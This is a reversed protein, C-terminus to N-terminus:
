INVCNSTPCPTCFFKDILQTKPPIPPGPPRRIIIVTPQLPKNVVVQPRAPEFNLPPGYNILPPPRMPIGISNPGNAQMMTVHDSRIETNPKFEPAVHIPKENDNQIIPSPINSNSISDLNSLNINWTNSMEKNNQNPDPSLPIQQNNITVELTITNDPNSPSNSVTQSEFESSILPPNVQTVPQALEYFTENSEIEDLNAITTIEVTTPIEDTKSDEYDLDDGFRNSIHPFQEVSPLNTTIQASTTTEPITSRQTTTTRPTQTTPPPPPLTSPWQTVTTPRTTRQVIPVKTTQQQVIVPPPQQPQQQPQQPERSPRFDNTPIRNVVPVVPVSQPNIQSQDNAFDGTLANRNAIRSGPIANFQENRLYEEFRRNYEGNPDWKDALARYYQPYDKYLKTIVKLANEKQIVTCRSCKTRLAEPLIRKLDKGEPPCPKRNLLCEVYNTVLRPSALITDINLNDYRRSYFGGGNEQSKVFKVVTLILSIICIIKM